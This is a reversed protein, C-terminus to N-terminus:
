EGFNGALHYIGATESLDVFFAEVRLHGLNNFSDHHPLVVLATPICWMMILFNFLYFMVWALSSQLLKTYPEEHVSLFFSSNDNALLPVSNTDCFFLM